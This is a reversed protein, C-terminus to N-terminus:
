LFCYWIRGLTLLLDMQPCAIDKRRVSSQINDNHFLFLDAFTTM